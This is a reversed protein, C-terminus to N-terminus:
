ETDENLVKQLTQFSMNRGSLIIVTPGKLPTKGFLCGALAVAASPEILIQQHKLMWRLAAKHEEEKILAISDVRSKLIDFCKEGIGGEIGGALTEVPPMRTVATGQELSLKFSPSEFLQCVHIQASPQKSKVYWSFGASLGGGGMPLVYDVADSIQSLLEVALSGGNAAMIKEDDYPTIMPLGLEEAKGKAWDQTEDFGIFPSKIVTAGLAAIKDHKAQDVSKPVYITCPVGFEKAAYAVALGHNGASCAAVGNKREVADMQHIYFYAGRLKFSGTIQLNELKFYIPQGLRKSLEPSYEIPTERIKGKLFQSAQTILDNM